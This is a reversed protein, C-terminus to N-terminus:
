GTSALVLRARRLAAEARRHQRLARRERRLASVLRAQEAEARLEAPRDPVMSRAYEVHHLLM